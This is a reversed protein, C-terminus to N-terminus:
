GHTDRALETGMARLVDANWAMGCHSSQVEVLRARPDLCARWDVIGDSRSYFAVFPTSPPLPSDLERRVSECCADDRTCGLSLLGPVGLSGLAGVLGVNLIVLLHVALPDLLPAGLTMLGDVLDPRRAALLRAFGGGRSQGIVLAKRGGSRSVHRELRAEIPALLETACGINLRMGASKTRYGARRLARALPVLSVDGALYGPILFVPRGEGSPFGVGKAVPDRFLRTSELLM